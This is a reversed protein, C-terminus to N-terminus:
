ETFLKNDIYQKVNLDEIYEMFPIYCYTVCSSEIECVSMLRINSIMHQRTQEKCVIM